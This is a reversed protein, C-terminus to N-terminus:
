SGRSRKFKSMGRIFEASRAVSDEITLDPMKEIKASLDAQFPLLQSFFETTKGISADIGAAVRGAGKEVMAKKWGELTVRGMGREWKGSQIAANWNNVLKDKKKIAKEAPNSTVANVGAVMDQQAAKTRRAHKEAVQEPTLNKAM